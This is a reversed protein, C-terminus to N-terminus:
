KGEIAKKLLHQTYVHDTSHDQSDTHETTQEHQIVEQMQACTCEALYDAHVNILCELLAEGLQKNSEYQRIILFIMDWSANFRRLLYTSRENHFCIKRFYHKFPEYHEKQLGTQVVFSAINKHDFRHFRYLLVLIGCVIAFIIVILSAFNVWLLLQLSAIEEYTCYIQSVNLPWQSLEFSQSSCIFITNDQVKFLFFPVIISAICLIFQVAKSFFYSCTLLRSHQQRELSRASELDSSEFLGTKPSRKLSMGHLITTFSQVNGSCILAWFIQPGSLLAIAFYLISRGRVYIPIAGTCLQSIYVEYNVSSNEQLFCRVESSQLYSGITQVSTVGLILLIMALIVKDWWFDRLSNGSKLWVKEDGLHIVVHNKNAAKGHQDDSTHYDIISAGRLM